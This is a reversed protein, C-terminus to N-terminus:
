LEEVIGNLRENSLAVEIAEGNIVLKMNWLPTPALLKDLEDIAKAALFARAVEALAEEFALSPLVRAHTSGQLTLSGVQWLSSYETDWYKDLMPGLIDSVFSGRVGQRSSHGQGVGHVVLSVRVAPPADALGLEYVLMQQQQLCQCSLDLIGAIRVSRRQSRGVGAINTPQRM